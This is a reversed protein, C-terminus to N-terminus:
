IESSLRGGQQLKEQEPFLRSWIFEPIEKESIQRLQRAVTFVESIDTATEARLRVAKIKVTFEQQMGELIETSHTEWFALSRRFHNGALGAAVGQLVTLHWLYSDKAPYTYVWVPVNGLILEALLEIPLRLFDARASKKQAEKVMDNRAQDRPDLLTPTVPFPVRFRAMCDELDAWAHESAKRRIFSLINCEVHEHLAGESSCTTELHAEKKVFDHLSWLDEPNLGTEFSGHKKVIDEFLAQQAANREEIFRQHKLEEKRSPADGEIGKTSVRSALKKRVAELGAELEQDISVFDSKMLKDTHMLNGILNGFFPATAEKGRGARGVKPGQKVPAEVQESTSLIYIRPQDAVTVLRRHFPHTGPPEM